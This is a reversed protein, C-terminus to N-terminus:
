CSHTQWAAASQLQPLKEMVVLSLKATYARATFRCLGPLQLVTLPFVTFLDLLSFFFHFFHSSFALHSNGREHTKWGVRRQGGFRGGVSRWSERPPPKSEDWARTPSSDWTPRQSLTSGGLWTALKARQPRTLWPPTAEQLSRATSTWPPAVLSGPSGHLLCLRLECHSTVFASSPRSSVSGHLLPRCHKQKNIKQKKQFLIPNPM